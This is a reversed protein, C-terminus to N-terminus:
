LTTHHERPITPIPPVPLSNSEVAVADPSQDASSERKGTVRRKVSKPRRTLKPSVPTKPENPTYTPAHGVPATFAMDIPSTHLSGSTNSHSFKFASTNIKLDQSRTRFKPVGTRAQQRSIAETVRDKSEEMEAHSQSVDPSIPSPLPSLDPTRAVEPSVPSVLYKGDVGVLDSNVYSEVPELDEDKFIDGYDEETHITMVPSLEASSPRRAYNKINREDSLEIGGTIATQSRLDKNAFLTEHNQILDELVCDSGWEGPLSGKNHDQFIAPTFMVSLNQINMKNIEAQSSVNALHQILVKLTDYNPSELHLIRTLLNMIRLEKDPIKSYSLRDSLKFKFVPESLERLYIKLISAIALVDAPADGKGFELAEEEREFCQRLKDIASQRGSVRYIGERHLGGLREVADICRTVILPPSRGDHYLAYETLSLGFIMDKSMGVYYNHYYNKPPAPLPQKAIEIEFAKTDSQPEIKEALVGIDKVSEKTNETSIIESDIVVALCTKIIESKEQLQALLAKEAFDITSLHKLRLTELKRLVARYLADTEAIDKKTKANKVNQKVPDIPQANTFHSMQRMFRALRKQPHHSPSTPDPSNPSWPSGALSMDDHFEGHRFSQPSGPLPIDEHSTGVISGATGTSKSPRPSPLSTQSFPSTPTTPLQNAMQTQALELEKCKQEYATRARPLEGLLCQAYEVNCDHMKRRHYRMLKEHQIRLDTLDKVQNKMKEIYATRVLRTHNGFAKMQVFAQQASTDIYNYKSKESTSDDLIAPIQSLSQQYKEEIAIRHKFYVIVKELDDVSWRMMDRIRNSRAEIVYVQEARDAPVSPPEPKSHKKPQQQM